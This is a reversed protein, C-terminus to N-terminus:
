QIAGLALYDHITFIADPLNNMELLKKTTKRGKLLKYPTEIVLSEDFDLGYDLLTQKYSKTYQVPCFTALNLATYILKSNHFFCHM